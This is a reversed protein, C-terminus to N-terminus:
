GLDDDFGPAIRVQGRWVGPKRECWGPQDADVDPSAFTAILAQRLALEPCGYGMGAGGDTHRTDYIARGNEIVRWEHSGSGDITYAEIVKSDDFPVPVRYSIVDDSM